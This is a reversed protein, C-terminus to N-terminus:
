EALAEQIRSAVEEISGVGDIYKVIGRKEYEEIVPKTKEEYVALRHSIVEKTDDARGEIEARKLLRAISEERPVTLVLLVEPSEITDFARLQELNRPYGDLIYGEKADDKMLRLKLIELADEDSVLNGANLIGALKQGFEGGEAIVDRLLQGMSLAPINLREALLNAQTGKGSGQPGLILIRQKM